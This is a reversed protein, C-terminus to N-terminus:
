AARRARERAKQLHGACSRRGPMALAKCSRCQTTDRKPQRARGARARDYARVHDANAIRWQKARDASSYREHSWLCWMELQMEYHNRSEDALEAFMERIGTM